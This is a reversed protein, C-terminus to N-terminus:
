LVDGLVIYSTRICHWLHQVFTKVSEECVGSFYNGSPSSSVRLLSRHRLDLILDLCRFLQHFTVSFEFYKGRTRCNEVFVSIFLGNNKHHKILSTSDKETGDSLRGLCVVIMLVTM